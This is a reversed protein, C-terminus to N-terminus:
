KKYVINARADQTLQNIKKIKRIISHNLRNSDVYITISSNIYKTKQHLINIIDLLMNAKVASVINYEWSKLCM